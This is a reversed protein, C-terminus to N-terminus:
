SGRNESVGMYTREPVLLAVLIGFALREEPLAHGTGPVQVAQESAGFRRVSLLDRRLVLM